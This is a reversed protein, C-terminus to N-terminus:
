TIGSVEIGKNPVFIYGAFIYNNALPVYKVGPSPNRLLEIAVNNDILSKRCGLRGQRLHTAAVEVEGNPGNKHSWLKTNPDQRMFHFGGNRVLMAVLYHGSPVQNPMHCPDLSESSKEIDLPFFTITKDDDAKADEKIGEFLSEVYERQSGIARKGPLGKRNVLGPAMANGAPRPCKMAYAYCNPGNGWGSEVTPLLRDQEEKLWEEFVQMQDGANRISKVAGDNRDKKKSDYWAEYADWVLHLVTLDASGGQEYALLENDINRLLESRKNKGLIVRDVTTEEVWSAHTIPKKLM